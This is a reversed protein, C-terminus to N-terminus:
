AGNATATEPLSGFVAPRMGNQKPFVNVMIRWADAADLAADADTSAILNLEVGPTSDTSLDLVTNFTWTSTALSHGTSAVALPEAVNTGDPVALGDGPMLSAAMMLNMTRWGPIYEDFTPGMAQSASDMVGAGAADDDVLTDGAEFSVLFAATPGGYAGDPSVHILEVTAM